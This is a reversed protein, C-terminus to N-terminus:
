INIRALYDECAEKLTNCALLACHENEKPLYGLADLVDKQRLNLAEGITKGKALCTTMSGAAHSTRCGTTTFGIQEIKDDLASIWFEMTDGCPGTIRAHGNYYKLSSHNRPNQAHNPVRSIVNLLDTFEM